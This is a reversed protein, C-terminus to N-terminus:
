DQKIIKGRFIQEKSKIEFYYIGNSQNRLDIYNSKNPINMKQGFSNFVGIVFDDSEMLDFRFIGNSPNPYINLTKKNSKSDELVTATCGNFGTVVDWLDSEATRVGTQSGEPSANIELYNDTSSMYQPWNELIGNNPNGTKAFNVWYNLMANQVAADEPKFLIGSGLLTNEWNNFVYLLEMGHYSGYAELQPITHKHSFFYRWVPETQSLSVCQATRRANVTFQADTLIGVYSKRAETSNSGPPYLELAEPQLDSPVTNKILANVMIPLVTQPASLSMEDANSGIILPVKNYNGSEVIRAPFDHFIVKDVVARWNGQVIGGELPSTEFYMLSDSSLSRMHSIKEADTGATIFNDVFTIGKNRSDAYSNITPAASQICARQFLGSALPTTLLNGVNVGGASEGFIMVRSPDGGFSEINNKIWKLALIQDLVAYNGSVNNTNEEELGPHVLFGLPGLRYQITVVVVNGREALNKGSYMPTGAAIESASGQQNGGGHIFVMVPLNFNGIDPTWINLYLCDEEGEITFTSEGQTFKKQPCVPSFETTNLIGQWSEPNQPAKWRLSDVPPKAFPIGLFQYVNENVSGQIQGFQTNVIQANTEPFFLILVSTLLFIRM